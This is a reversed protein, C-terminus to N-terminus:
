GTARWRSCPAGQWLRLGLDATVTFSYSTEALPSLSNPGSYAANFAPKTQWIYTTQGHVAFDPAAEQASAPTSLAGLVVVGLATARASCTVTNIM